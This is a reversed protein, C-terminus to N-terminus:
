EGGLAEIDARDKHRGLARKNAILAERGIIFIPIDGYLVPMRTAEVQRWTVGSLTTLIDVRVPSYGLQIVREPEMFDTINLDLDGFGFEKLVDLVRQANSLDAEVLIDLDGTFRPVGHFAMAFAGVVAYNVNHANLLALLEKFDPQTEM